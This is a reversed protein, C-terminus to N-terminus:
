GQNLIQGRDLYYQCSKIDGIKLSSFNQEVGCQLLSFLIQERKFFFLHNCYTLQFPDSSSFKTDDGSKRSSCFLINICLDHKM